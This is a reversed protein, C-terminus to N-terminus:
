RVNFPNMSRDFMPVDRPRARHRLVHGRPMPKGALLAEANRRAAEEWAAIWGGPPRERHDEPAGGVLEAWLACRLRRALAADLVSLNQEVARDDPFGLERAAEVSIGDLNASGLTCWRDDVVAVKSHVYLPRVGPLGHRTGAAWASYVGLRPEHPWGLEALRRAQSVDYTPFDMHENVVLIAELEPRSDLARRLSAAVVASTFYQTEVYVLRRAAALARQYSELITTLGDPAGIGPPSTLTV